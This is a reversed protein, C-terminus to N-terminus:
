KKTAGKKGGPADKTGLEANPGNDTAGGMLSSMDADNVTLVGKEYRISWTTEDGEKEGLGKLMTLVPIADKLEPTTSAMRILREFGKITFTAEGTFDETSSVDVWMDGTLKAHGMDVTINDVGVTLPTKRLMALLRRELAKTDKGDNDIAQNLLSIVSARPLGSVYPRFSLMRPLLDRAAGKPIAPSDLGELTFSMHLDINGEPAGAGFGIAFKGISGRMGAAEIQMGEISQEMEIGSFLNSLAAVLARAQKKTAPSLATGAEGSDSAILDRIMQSMAGFGDMAVADAKGTASTSDASWSVMTGDPMIQTTALKEATMSATFNMRGGKTPTWSINTRAKGVRSIDAPKGGETTTIGDTLVADLSSTTALSPDIIMSIKQDGLKMSWADGTPSAVRFPQPIKANDVSWRGGSLARLEAGFSANGADFGFMSFVAAIPIEVRFHDGQPSFRLPRDDASLFSGTITTLWSRFQTELAAAQEPTTDARAVGSSALMLILGTRLCALRVLSRLAM